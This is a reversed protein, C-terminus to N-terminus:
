SQYVGSFLINAKEKVFFVFPHDATFSKKEPLQGSLYAIGFENAAAAEAGEENVEIFAKQIADSVYMNGENELLKDLKAESSKFLKTVKMQKLIDALKTTTEIKFKPLSLEVKVKYMEGISKNLMSPDELKKTMDKLGDIENPLVILFSAEDGEYPLELLKADLEESECYFFSGTLQMTPVKVSKSKSVHFDKAETKKIDFKNKWLGKFYIANVLVSRTLGDLSNPDVL